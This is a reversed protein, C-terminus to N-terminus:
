TVSKYFRTGTVIYSREVVIPTPLDWSGMLFMPVSVRARLTIKIPKGRQVVSSYSYLKKDPNTASCVDVAWDRDYGAAGDQNGYPAIAGMRGGDVDAFRTTNTESARLLNKFTTRPSNAGLDGSLCNEDAVIMALDGLRADVLRVANSYVYIGYLANFAIAILAAYLITKAFSRAWRFGM